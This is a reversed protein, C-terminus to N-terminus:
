RTLEVILDIDGSSTCLEVIKWRFSNEKLGM